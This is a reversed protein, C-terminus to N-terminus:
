KSTLFSAGGPGAAGGSGGDGSKRAQPLPPYEFSTLFTADATTDPNIAGTSGPEGAQQPPAPAVFAATSGRQPPQPEVVESVSGMSANSATFSVTPRAPGSVGTASSVARMVNQATRSGTGSVGFMLDTTSPVHSDGSQQSLQSPGHPFHPHLHDKEPPVSLKRSGFLGGGFHPKEPGPESSKRPRGLGIGGWSGGRDSSHYTPHLSDNMSASHAVPLSLTHSPTRSTVPIAPSPAFASIPSSPLHSTGQHHASASPPILPLLFPVKALSAADSAVSTARGMSLQTGTLVAGAFGCACSRCSDCPTAFGAPGHSSAHLFGSSASGHHDGISGRPWASAGEIDLTSQTDGGVAALAGGKALADRATATSSSVGGAIISGADQVGAGGPVMGSPRRSGDFSALSRGGARMSMTKLSSMDGNELLNEGHVSATTSASSSPSAGTAAATAAAVMAQAPKAVIQMSYEFLLAVGGVIVLFGMVISLGQAASDVPFGQFLVASSVLTATTFFVYYIPTVVAASFLGLSRNLFHIQTVITLVVFALLPYIGWIVFQNDTRWNRVSYVLAAGFGSTSLVLYAGILSTISIYVLPTKDAYRPQLYFILVCLLVVMLGTYVLFGPAFVYRYFEPITQTTSSAPAHLVIMTAGIVCLACGIKGGFNLREKLFVTSLIASIVVSLAGLPTVLIAPAFAYAGFNAVEGLATLIFGCWWVVNKLYAHERGPENSRSDILGKKTFVVSAGILGGSALALAIGVAKQWPAADPAEAAPSM